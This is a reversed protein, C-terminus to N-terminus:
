RVARRHRGRSRLVNRRKRAARQAAAVTTGNRKYRPKFSGSTGANGRIGAISGLMSGIGGQPAAGGGILRTNTQAQAGPGAQHQAMQAMPAALMAATAAMLLTRNKM